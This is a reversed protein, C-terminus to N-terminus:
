KTWCKEKCFKKGTKPNLVMPAGCKNCKEGAQVVQPAPTSPNSVVASPTVPVHGQGRHEEIFFSIAMSRVDESTPTVGAGKFAEVADKICETMATVRESM